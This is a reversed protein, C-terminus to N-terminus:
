KAVRRGEAETLFFERGDQLDKEMQKCLEELGSFKQEPRKFELLAIRIEKGYIDESFDYIYTEAGMQKKDSVTPKCGINTIGRYLSGEVWIQSFYVGAPPLLKNEPPLLNATPMGITRGLRNGHVVRGSLSFPRGLMQAAEKMEGREVRTRVATSSIIQGQYRVKDIIEVQYGCQEQMEKLLQYDGKGGDGFSIDAGAALYATHLQNKLIDQIFDRPAMAATEATLPFEILVDIGLKEFAARKEERTMLEQGNSFGFFVAPPPDFTFVVAMLGQTKKDTVYQLLAQHGLHIGDFKGITLASRGKIEFDTTKQIIQM